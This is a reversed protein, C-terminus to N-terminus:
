WVFLCKERLVRTGLHRWEWESIFLDKATDLKSFVSGGKWSLLRPDIERPAPLVEVKELGPKAEQIKDELMRNFGNILGGGGTFVISTFLRKHEGIGSNGISKLVAAELGIVMNDSDVIDEITEEKESAGANSIPTDAGDMVSSQPTFPQPSSVASNANIIKSKSFPTSPGITTPKDIIEDFGDDTSYSLYNVKDSSPVHLVQPFFLGMPALIVEDYLKLQYKRATKNPVRVFFDAVHVSIEAESMTCYKEKLEEALQWDYNQSLDIETYPFQNRKLLKMFFSTVNDGGFNLRVRSDPICMGDEVCSVSTKQAGIDVICATSMGAGFTAMVSEQHILVGKFKMDNLLMNVLETVYVKHYLDPIVLVINYNSFEKAEIKLEEEIAMRWIVRIDAVVEQISTYDSTNFSGNQVPYTLRYDPHLQPIRLAKKGSLCEPKSSVDTWEVKYPDNHDPITEPTSSSNFSVVQSRANYVSRRKAAKMRQKLEDEIIMLDEKLDDIEEDSETEANPEVEMKDSDKGVVSADVPPVSPFNVRRALCHPIQKPFADTARGIRLFRSGPHIVIVDSGPGSVREEEESDESQESDESEPSKKDDEVEMDETKSEIVTPEPKPEPPLLYSKETRLYSSTVNRTQLLSAVPISTYRLSQAQESQVPNYNSEPGVESDMGTTVSDLDDEKEKRWGKPPM